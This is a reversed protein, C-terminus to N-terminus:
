IVLEEMGQDPFKYKYNFVKMFGKQYDTLNDMNWSIPSIFLPVKIGFHITADNYEEGEKCSEEIGDADILNAIGNYRKALKKILIPITMKLKPDKTLNDENSGKTVEKHTRSNYRSYGGYGYKWYFNEMVNVTVHHFFFRKPFCYIGTHFKSIHDYEPNIESFKQEELDWILYYENETVGFFEKMTNQNSYREALHLLKEKRKELDDNTRFAVVTDYSIKNQPIKKYVSTGESINILKQKESGYRCMDLNCYRSFVKANVKDKDKMFLDTLFKRHMVYRLSEAM